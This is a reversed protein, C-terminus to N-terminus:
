IYLKRMISFLLMPVQQSIARLHIRCFSMLSFDTNAWNVWQTRTVCINTLLSVMMPESLPKDGLWRWAMIQVLPPINNIRFRPVSKLSIKLSIQVNENLFIWQFIAEMKDWGWYTLTNISDTLLGNSSGMNIWMQIVMHCWLAMILQNVKVGGSFEKIFTKVVTLSCIIENYCSWNAKVWRGRTFIAGM